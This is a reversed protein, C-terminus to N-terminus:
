RVPHVQTRLRLEDLRREIVAGDPWVSALEILEDVIDPVPRACCCPCWGQAEFSARLANEYDRRNLGPIERVM